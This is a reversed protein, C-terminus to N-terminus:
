AVSMILSAVWAEVFRAHVNSTHHGPWGELKDGTAGDFAEIFHVFSSVVVDKRGDGNLDALLPTSYISSGAEAIWRLEVNAPCKSEGFIPLDDRCTSPCCRM